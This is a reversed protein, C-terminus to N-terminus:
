PTGTMTSNRTPIHFSIGFSVSADVYLQYEIPPSYATGSSNKALVRYWARPNIGVYPALRDNLFFFLRLPVGLRLYILQSQNDFEVGGSIGSWGPYFAVALGAGITPVLGKQAAPNSVFAYGLGVEAGYKTINTVEDPNLTESDYSFWPAFYLALRDAVYFDVAPAIAIIWHFYEDASNLLQNFDVYVSGGGSFGIGGKAFNEGIDSYLIPLSLALVVALVLFKKNM